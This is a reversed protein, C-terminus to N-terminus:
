TNMSSSPSLWTEPPVTQEFFLPDIGLKDFLELLGSVEPQGPPANMMGNYVEEGANMHVLLHWGIGKFAEMAAPDDVNVFPRLKETGAKVQETWSKHHFHLYVLPTELLGNGRGSVDTHSGHDVVGVHAAPFFVKQYPFVWFRGPHGLINLLNQKIELTEARGVYARLCALIEERVCTFGGEERRLALFEDCDIPLLFDYGGRTAMAQLQETVFEGKRQYDAAAPLRVVQLGEHEYWALTNLVKPHTSGHDIVCLNEMGFLHAHYLLWPELANVENKQM